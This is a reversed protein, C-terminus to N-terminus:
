ERVCGNCYLGNRRGYVDLSWCFPFPFLFENVFNQLNFDCDVDSFFVKWLDELM